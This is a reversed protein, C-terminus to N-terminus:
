HLFKKIEIDDQQRDVYFIHPHRLTHRVAVFAPSFEVLVVDPANKKLYLRAAHENHVEFYSYNNKQLHLHLKGPKEDFNDLLMVHHHKHGLSYSELIDFFTAIDLPSRLYHAIDPSIHFPDPYPKIVIIPYKHPKIEQGFHELAVMGTRSNRQLDFILVDPTIEKSYNLLQYLNDTGFIQIDKNAFFDRFGQLRKRNDDYVFIRGLALNSM